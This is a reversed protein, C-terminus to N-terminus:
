QRSLLGKDPISEMKTRKNVAKYIINDSFMVEMLQKSIFFTPAVEM